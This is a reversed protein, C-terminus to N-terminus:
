RRVVWVSYGSRVFFDKVAQIQPELRVDLDMSILGKNRPLLSEILTLYKQMLEPDSELARNFLGCARGGGDGVKELIDDSISQASKARGLRVIETYIYDNSIHMHRDLHALERALSTKGSQSQGCILLLSPKKPTIRVFRTNITPHESPLWDLVRVAYDRLVEDLLFEFSPLGGIPTQVIPNATEFGGIANGTRLVAFVVGQPLLVNRMHTMLRALDRVVNLGPLARTDVFAININSIQADWPAGSVSVLRPDSTDHHGNGVIYCQRAGAALIAEHIRPDQTDLDAVILDKLDGYERNNPIDRLRSVYDSISNKSEALKM